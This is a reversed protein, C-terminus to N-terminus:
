MCFFNILRWTMKISGLFSWADRVCGVWVLPLVFFTLCKELFFATTISGSSVFANAKISCSQLLPLTLHPFLSMFNSFSTFFSSFSLSLDHLNRSPFIFSLSYPSLYSESSAFPRSYVIPGYKAVERYKGSM